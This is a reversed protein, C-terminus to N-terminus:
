LSGALGIETLIHKWKLAEAQLFQETDAISPPDLRDVIPRPTGANAVLMHWAVVDFDSIGSAEAFSPLEPFAPL